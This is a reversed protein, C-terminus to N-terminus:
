EKRAGRYQRITFYNTFHAIKLENKLIWKKFGINLSEPANRILKEPKTSVIRRRIRLLGRREHVIKFLQELLYFWLHTICNAFDDPCRLKNAKIKNKLRSKKLVNIFDRQDKEELKVDLNHAFRNRVAGLKLLAQEIDIDILGDAVALKVKKAYTMKDLELKSHNYAGNELISNLFSEIHLHSFLVKELHNESQIHSIFEAFFSRMLEDSKIKLSVIKKSAM